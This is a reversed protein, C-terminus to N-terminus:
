GLMSSLCDHVRDLVAKQGSTYYLDYIITALRHKEIMSLDSSWEMSSVWKECMTTKDVSDRLVPYFWDSNVVWVDLFLMSLSNWDTEFGNLPDDSSFQFDVFRVNHSDDVIVTRRGLLYVM